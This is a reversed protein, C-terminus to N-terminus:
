GGADQTDDVTAASDAEPANDAEPARARMCALALVAALGLLELATSLQVGVVVMVLCAVAAIARRRPDAFHLAVRFAASGLAFAGTGTALFWAIPTSAPHFFHGSTLRLGAALLLVGFIMVYHALFYGTIAQIPRRTAPAAEMAEVASEDDGTGFYLWWMTTLVLLGALAGLVTQGSLHATESAAAVGVLSEGLVILIVLGHREGFHATNITFATELRMVFPSVVQVLAAVIWLTIVVHGHVFGACLLLLGSVVNTPLFRPLARLASRGGFVIFGVAHATVVALYAAGFVIGSDSFARPTALAVVFFAGMGVLLIARRPVTDPANTNTLWAFGGYMWFIVSLAVAARAVGVGNPSSVIVGTVETITFVFVLDFFLEATSVRSPAQPAQVGGDHCLGCSLQERTM